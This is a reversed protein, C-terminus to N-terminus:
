AMESAVPVAGAALVQDLVGFLATEIGDAGFGQVPERAILRVKSLDAHLRIPLSGFWRM